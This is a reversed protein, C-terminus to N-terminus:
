MKILEVRRNKARGEVTDNDGVPQAEGYGISELQKADVGYDNVLIALVAKARKESLKQNYDDDGQSDTHGDIRLKMAKDVNVVKAIEAILAYSESKVTSKNVDFYIGYLTMKGDQDLAKKIAQDDLSSTVTYSVPKILEPGTEAYFLRMEYNGKVAPTRMKFTGGLLDPRLYRYTYYQNYGQEPNDKNFFGMWASDSLDKHGTYTIVMEESPGYADKDTSMAIGPLDPEGVRLSLTTILVGPDASYFRLDYDGSENPATLTYEGNKASYVYSLYSSPGKDKDESKFIGLWSKNDMAYDATLKVTFKHAPKIDQDVITINYEDPTIDNVSFPVYGLLTGPDDDYLRLHYKGTKNPAKMKKLGTKYLYVYANYDSTQSQDAKEDYTGLWAKEKMDTANAVRMEFIQGPKINETVISIQDTLANVASNPEPAQASAMVAHLLLVFMLQATKMITTRKIKSPKKIKTKMISYVSKKSMSHWM